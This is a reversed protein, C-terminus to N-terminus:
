AAPLRGAGFWGRSGNSFTLGGLSVDQAAAMVAADALLTVPAGLVQGLVALAMFVWFSHAGLLTARALTGAVLTSM